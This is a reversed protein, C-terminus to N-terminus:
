NKLISTNTGVTRTFLYVAAATYKNQMECVADGVEDATIQLNTKVPTEQQAKIDHQLLLLGTTIIAIILNYKKM